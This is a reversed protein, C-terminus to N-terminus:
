FKRSISKILYCIDRGFAILFIILLFIKNGYPIIHTTALQPFKTKIM